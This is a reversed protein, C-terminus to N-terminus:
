RRMIILLVVVFVIYPLFKQTGGSDTKSAALAETIQRNQSTLGNTISRTLDAMAKADRDEDAYIRDVIKNLDDGSLGVNGGVKTTRTYNAEPSLFLGTNHDLAVRNDQSITQSWSKSM